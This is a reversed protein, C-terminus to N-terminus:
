LPISLLDSYVPYTAYGVAPIQHGTEVLFVRGLGFKLGAEVDGLKDGVIFSQKLDISYDRAASEFMGTNPKRCPCDCRYEPGIGDPHHPCYYIDLIDIGQSKLIGRYWKTLKDYDSLTYYGKAIGAQNTVIIIKYGHAIFRKMGSICNKTFEFDEIKYLYNVEKNIVGDRDLFAVKM